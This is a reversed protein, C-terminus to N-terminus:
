GDQKGKQYERWSIIIRLTLLVVGGILMAVGLGSEVGQIWLPSSLATGGLGIDFVQREMKPSMSKLYSLLTLLMLARVM